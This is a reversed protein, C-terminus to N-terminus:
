LFKHGVEIIDRQRDSLTGTKWQTINREAQSLLANDHLLHGAILQMRVSLLTGEKIKSLSRMFRNSSVSQIHGNLVQEGM